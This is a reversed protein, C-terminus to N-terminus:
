FTPQFGWFILINPWRKLPSAMIDQRIIYAATLMAIVNNVRQTIQANSQFEKCQILGSMCFCYKLEPATKTPGGNKTGIWLSLWHVVDVHNNWIDSISFQHDLFYCKLFLKLVLLAQCLLWARFVTIAHCLEFLRFLITKGANVTMHLIGNVLKVQSCKVGLALCHTFYM